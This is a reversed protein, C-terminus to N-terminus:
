DLRSTDCTDSGLRKIISDGQMEKPKKIEMLDLVTPAVDKLGKNKKLKLEKRQSVLVFPVPNLTHSTKWEKRQDEANGHDAFVLVNYNNEIGKKVIKGVAQDVFEVAKIIAKKEGSHGVMDANVLNLVILDHENKVIEKITELTLKVISMEPKKDYTAVKPSPIMIRKEGSLTKEKQGNFFFTVHSYKETESIRLQKKGKESLVEGLTNKIEIEKFVVEANMPKYYDTMAVFFVNQKKRKWGKFKKEVIAQTLQRPRDTRLNYFIISDNSKIGSYNEEVSPYIFEDTEKKRYCENIKKLPCKFKSESKGKVIANYAKQTRQWRKDRDMAYYRGCITVIKGTKLSNIKEILEKLYVKGKRPPSDRGDTFVHVFVDKFNEKKCLELLAFLHEIHAHVGEKQLLGMLHLHSKNKKCNRIADLLEKKNFFSKNKISENIRALSQNIIRGSGITLHGVESNGQYGKPLGVANEAAKLIVNPYKKRLKDDIPTKSELVANFKKEKRFGWGDRIILIVKQKKKNKM